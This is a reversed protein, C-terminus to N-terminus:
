RKRFLLRAVHVPQVWRKHAVKISSLKGRRIWQRIRAPRVEFREAVETIPLWELGKEDRM